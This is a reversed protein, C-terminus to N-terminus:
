QIPNLYHFVAIIIFVAPIAIAYIDGLKKLTPTYKKNNFGVTQFSSQFGHLLHLSLLVFSGVYLSVRVPDHFKHNLEVLYRTTDEPLAQVYKYSMEPIWFDYFHLGLFALVVLGSYLMNRSMWTSTAGPKDYAYKITRAEKNKYELYFGMAFHFVVAFILVPQLAYQVLPNYGMFHSVMNFDDPSIVSLLNISMHQLLFLMLFLGSLAMLIKRGITTFKSKQM